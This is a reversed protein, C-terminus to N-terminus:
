EIKERKERVRVRGKGGKGERGERGEERGGHQQEVRVKTSISKGFIYSHSPLSFSM